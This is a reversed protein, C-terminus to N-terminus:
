RQQLIAGAAANRLIKADDAPIQGDLKISRPDINNITAFITVAALYAGHASPHSGDERYLKAFLEPQTDHIIQWADGVPAVKAKLSKGATAYSKTLAKQMASFDKYNNRPDGDRRGWTQYFVVIGKNTLALENLGKAAELFKEPFIAPTQSQDQLVVVESEGSKILTTTKENELHFALTKGGPTVFNLKASKQDTQAYLETMTGRIGQTYSNGIFLVDPSDEAFCTQVLAFLAIARFLIRHPTM